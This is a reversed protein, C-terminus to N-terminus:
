VGPIVRSCARCADVVGWFVEPIGDRLRKVVKAPRLEMARVTESAPGDLTEPFCNQCAQGGIDFGFTVFGGLLGPGLAARRFVGDKVEFDAEPPTRSGWERAVTFVETLATSNMTCAQTSRPLSKCPGQIGKRTSSHGAEWFSLELDVCVEGSRLDCSAAQAAAPTGQAGSSRPRPRSGRNPKSSPRPEAPGKQESRSWAGHRRVRTESTNAQECPTRKALQERYKLSSQRYM